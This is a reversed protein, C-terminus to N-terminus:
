LLSFVLSILAVAVLVPARGLGAVCHVQFISEHIFVLSACCRILVEKVLILCRSPRRPVLLPPRIKKEIFINM